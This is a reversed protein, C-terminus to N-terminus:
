LTVDGLIGPIAARYSLRGPSSWTTEVLYCSEVSDIATSLAANAPVFDLQRLITDPRVLYLPVPAGTVDTLTGDMQEHYDATVGLRRAAQLVPVRDRDILFTYGSAQGILEKVIEGALDSRDFQRGVSTGTTAMRSYDTSIFPAAATLVNQIVTSVDATGTTTATYARYMLTRWYGYCDLTITAAGNASQGLSGSEPLWLLRQRRSLAEAGRATATATTVGGLSEQHEVIGYLAQGATDNNVIPTAPGLDTPPSTSFDMTRYLMRTRNAYGELSRVRRRRGAGFDVSWILGEWCWQGDPSYIAIPNGLWSEAAWFGEDLSGAWTVRATLPGWLAAHTMQIDAARDSLDAILTSTPQGDTTKAYIQPQM